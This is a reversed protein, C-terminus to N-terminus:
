GWWRDRSRRAFSTFLYELVVVADTGMTAQIEERPLQLVSVPGRKSRARTSKAKEPQGEESTLKDRLAHGRHYARGTRYAEKNKRKRWESRCAGRGCTMQRDGVRAKPRFFKRCIRCPRKKYIEPLKKGVLKNKGMCGGARLYM